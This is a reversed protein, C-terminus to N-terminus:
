WHILSGDIDWYKMNNDENMKSMSDFLRQSSETPTLDGQNSTMKTQVFGPHFLGFTIGRQGIAKSLSMTGMNLACKSMRYGYYGGFGNDSISGMKSTIMAVKSDKMLYPLLTSTVRLPAITNVEFQKRMNDFSTEDFPIEENLFLGANNILLDIKFGEKEKAIGTFFNEIRQYADNTTLDVGELVQINLEKLETSAKRVIAIVSDKNEIHRKTLELGIGSSAGTIVITKQM